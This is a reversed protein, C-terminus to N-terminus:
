IRQPSYPTLTFSGRFSAQLSLHPNLHLRPCHSLRPDQSYFTDTGQDMVAGQPHSLLESPHARNPMLSVWGLNRPGWVGWHAQAGFAASFCPLEPGSLTIPTQVFSRETIRLTSLQWHWCPAGLTNTSGQVNTGKGEEPTSHFLSCGWSHSFNLKGQIKFYYM